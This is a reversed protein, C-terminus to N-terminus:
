FPIEDDGGPAVKLENRKRDVRGLLRNIHAELRAIEVWEEGCGLLRRLNEAAIELEGIAQVLATRANEIYPVPDAPNM